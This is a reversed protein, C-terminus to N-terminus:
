AWGLRMSFREVRSGSKDSWSEFKIRPKTSSVIIMIKWIDFFLNSHFASLLSNDFLIIIFMVLKAGAESEGKWSDTAFHLLNKDRKKECRSYHGCFCRQCIKFQFSITLEIESYLWQLKNCLQYCLVSERELWERNACFHNLKISALSCSKHLNMAMEAPRM